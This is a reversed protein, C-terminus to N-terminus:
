YIRRKKKYLNEMDFYEIKLSSNNEEFKKNILFNPTITGAGIFDFLHKQLERNKLQLEFMPASMNKSLLFKEYKIRQFIGNEDHFNKNQKINKLITTENISLSFDKVELDILKISILGSLLEEIINNDLNNRIVDQSIGSQNVYDIFDQTTINTKNIKAINNQNNSGFGGFFGAFVLPAAILFVFVAAIKSSSFKRLNGIM